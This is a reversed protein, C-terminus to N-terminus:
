SPRARPSRRRGAAAAALRRAVEALTRQVHEPEYHVQEHTFRLPTLGAATHAQDRLRDRTQQAPTRHYTLGDTEVVLGLDPWYFDVEFGNLWMGTEPPGLGAQRALPLLRRELESRTLRFTRRDLLARLVRVGPRGGLGTLAERLAPPTTLGLKDAENVAAELRRGGVRAAQDVLTCVVTTVPIGHHRTIDSSSLAARRHVSIGPARRSIRLPVSVEIPGRPRPAIGWLALADGHSLVAGPGCRLIAAMWSGLRGVDPRGVAYVGRWLRHLRGNALRREIARASYGLELLQSRTVVWHQRRALAWISADNFKQESEWRM